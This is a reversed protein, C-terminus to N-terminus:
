PCAEYVTDLREVRVERRVPDVMRTAQPFVRAVPFQVVDHHPEFSDACGTKGNDDTGVLYLDLPDGVGQFDSRSFGSIVFGRPYDAVSVGWDQLDRHDGYVFGPALPKLSSPETVLLFADTGVTGPRGVRGTLALSGAPYLPFANKTEHLDLAAEDGLPTGAPDGIRRATVVIAPNSATRTILIDSATAASVASGAMVLFPAAGAPNGIEVVSEYGERDPGGHVAGVHLGTSFLGTNGNVRLAYAQSNGAGAAVFTGVAAVDGTTTGAGQPRAETLGRLLESANSVDYRHNWILSGDSRTRMLFADRNGAPNAHYGAVLIDGPRTGFAPDGTRAEVVDFGAKPLGNMYARSWQPRGDCDVKLLLVDDTSAGLRTTGVVIFGSGDRAEAVAQGRDNGGPGIDYSLEWFPSGSEKTRVLYVNATATGVGTTGVAIFGGDPCAEVASVRRAGQDSTAIPGFVNEFPQASVHAATWALGTAALALIARRTLSPYANRKM